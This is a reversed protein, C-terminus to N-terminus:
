RLLNQSKLLELQKRALDDDPNIRLAERFHFAAEAANGQELLLLALNGHAKGHEPNLRLTTEFEARAEPLKRQMRFILGLFYHPEDYSPKLQAAARFSNLAEDHRNQFLLAKGLQTYANADNPNLQLRYQSYAVINKLAKTQYDRSIVAFDNTNRPLVQLWLEAMEDTTQVGYRVRRPPHNPNRVNNTSNDYSFRMQLTTGKPLFIPRTYRYDGQWNFDWQKIWLLWQKKGNPLVAHAQLDKGLYHAHPAIALLEVDAPLTYSDEVVYSREGAPIDINFSTLAVKFPTNTPAQETFYFGVSPQVMEPKGTIQMHVQLVLDTQKELIWALGNPNRSPMKGPQWGLIQGEAGQINAPIEMGDFGPEPDQEDLLRAQKTRDFRLFAHHVAKWNGPRFEVASVYRKATTPIPIVFNRYVDRGESPLSYPTTMTVVLDPRGLQWDETWQPPAPLDSANGEVAGEAAWQQLMGIQDATLRREGVFEGFGPEPLWPPMYRSATVEAIQRARKKVDDYTLLHFPGAQAPRHCTSCNQYIIPAIDKSFTLQGRPRPVYDERLNSKRQIIQVAVYAAIGLAVTLIAALAIRRNPKRHKSAKTM